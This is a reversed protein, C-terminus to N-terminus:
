FIPHKRLEEGAKIRALQAQEVFTHLKTKQEPNLLDIPDKKLLDRLEPSFDHVVEFDKEIM